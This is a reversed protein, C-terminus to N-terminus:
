QRGKFKFKNKKEKRIELNKNKEEAQSYYDNGFQMFTNTWPYRSTFYTKVAVKEEIEKKIEEELEDSVSQFVELKLNDITLRIPSYLDFRALYDGKKNGVISMMWGNGFKGATGKDTPSWFTEMNVHSHWWLKLGSPDVGLQVSELLFKAIDEQSLDTTIGTCEQKFLYINKILFNNEFIKVEGLGSIESDTHKIYLDLKQKAELSIFVRTLENEEEQKKEM